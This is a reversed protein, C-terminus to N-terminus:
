ELMLLLLKLLLLLSLLLSLLLLLLLLLVLVLVRAHVLRSHLLGPRPLLHLLHLEPWIGAAVHVMSIRCLESIEHFAVLDHIGIMESALLGRLLLLVLVLLGKTQTGSHRLQSITTGDETSITL